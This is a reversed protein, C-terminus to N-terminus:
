RYIIPFAGFECSSHRGEPFPNLKGCVPFSPGAIIGKQYKTMKPTLDCTINQDGLDLLEMLDLTWSATVVSFLACKLLHKGM